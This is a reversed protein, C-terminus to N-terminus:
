GSKREGESRCMWRCTLVTACGASLKAAVEEMLGGVGSAAYPFYLPSCCPVRRRLHHCAGTYAAIRAAHELSPLSALSMPFFCSHLSDLELRGQRGAKELRPLPNSSGLLDVSNGGGFGTM